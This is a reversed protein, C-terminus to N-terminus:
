STWYAVEGTVGTGTVTGTTPTTWTPSANGASTLVQGSTGYATGTSGFSIGGVSTIRMREPPATNNANATHFTMSSGGNSANLNIYAASRSTDIITGNSSVRNVAVQAIDQESYLYLPTDTGISVNASSDIKLRVNAAVNSNGKVICFDGAATVDTSLSYDSSGSEGTSLILQPNSSQGAPRFVELKGNPSTQGIGVNGGREFTVAQNSNDVDYFFLDDGISTRISWAGTSSTLRIGGFDAGVDINIGDAGSKVVELKYGPSDTGIGVNGGNEIHLLNTLSGNIFNFDGTTLLRVDDTGSTIGIAETALSGSSRVLKLFKGNPITVDGAFTANQSSDLTLALTDNTKLEIPLNSISNIEFISDNSEIRATQTTGNNQYYRLTGANAASRGIIKLGTAGSDSNFTGVNATISGAFTANQSTDLTLATTSNTRLIMSNSGITSLYTEDGGDLEMRFHAGGDAQALDIAPNAYSVTLKGGLNTVGTSVTLSPNGVGTLALNGTMTDGDIEVYPGGIVTSADVWTPATGSGTSKLVYGSTGAAGSFQIAGTSDVAFKGNINSLIAM